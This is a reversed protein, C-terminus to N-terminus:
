HVNSEGEYIVKVNEEKMLILAGGNDDDNITECDEGFLVEEGVKIQETNSIAVVGRRQQSGQIIIGSAKQPVNVLIKGKLVRM